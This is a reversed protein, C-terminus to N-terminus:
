DRRDIGGVIIVLRLLQMISVALAAVYTMAAASLTKKAGKLEEGSLLGNEEICVLARKSADFETPLTVLQFVVCLSFCLVGFYALMIFVDSFSALLLGALILPISLKSGFNTVPVIATRIKVPTYGVAHQIAHGTEHCAVGIAATSTNGYVSDSLRIVNNTPDYHDTLQGSIREIRIHQLGNRDLVYRAAADATLGRTNYVKSYKNFTTNVKASAWLSFLVAPLVLIIYTWDMYM